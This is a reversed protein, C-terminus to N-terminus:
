RAAAGYKPTDAGQFSAFIVWGEHGAAFVAAADRLAASAGYMEVALRGNRDARDADTGEGRYQLLDPYKDWRPGVVAIDIICIGQLWHKKRDKTKQVLLTCRPLWKLVKVL